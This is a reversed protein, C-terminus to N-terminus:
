TLINARKCTSSMLQALGVQIPVANQKSILIRAQRGVTAINATAPEVPLICIGAQLTVVCLKLCVM